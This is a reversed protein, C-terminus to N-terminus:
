LTSNLEDALDKLGIQVWNEYLRYFDVRGYYNSHLSIVVGHHFPHVFAYFDGEGENM